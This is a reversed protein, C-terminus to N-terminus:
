PTEPLQFIFPNENPLLMTNITPALKNIYQYTLLDPNDQLIGSLLELADAEAQAEIMRAQAAGEAAIIRAESEGRALEVAQLAEQKKQEVVFKQQEVQQEAIQKQEVSAAYEPSFTINRLVFDVLSLGNEALKESLQTEIYDGLEFRKESIIEEVGFKSVGDRIVGRSQARVLDSAYRDQWLIHVQVVKQPDIEFIVSADVFIEQGDSTRASISDDGVIDGENQVISMTYTQRSIPYIEVREFFPIIWRLGPQLVQSRYGNPNLASIIIGREQPEIFVLGASLISFVLSIIIVTIITRRSNKVAKGHATQLIIYVIVGIVALWLVVSIRSLLDTIRM